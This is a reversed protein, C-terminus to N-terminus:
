LDLHEALIQVPHKAGRPATPSRTAAPSAPRRSRQRPRARVAKFLVREGIAMSLEYHEYGFSGAMGCCGSDVLQVKAGPIKALAARTGAAGVLAKQHCHGHLLIQQQGARLSPMAGTRAFHMEVLEAQGAIAAADEGPVLDPYEDILMAVCSPECGVIPVGQAGLAVLKAVNVRALDRAEGLLGKSALTRGCCSLGALQVEYGAAELLAVASRNVVPECYTTLCDDLLVIPGRSTVVRGSSAQQRGHRRFWKRFDNREFRPLPRRPDVGLVRQAVWAAGPMRAVWNSLPAFMSGLKNLRWTHAMLRVGLPAGHRRYYGDLFEMKLKAVDVNSPCEAKCGKCQLCLDYTEFM